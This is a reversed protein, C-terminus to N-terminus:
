KINLIEVLLAQFDRHNLILPHLALKRKDTEDFTGFYLRDIARKIMDELGHIDETNQIRLSAVIDSIREKFDTSINYDHSELQNM